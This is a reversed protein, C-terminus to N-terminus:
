IAMPGKRVATEIVDLKGMEGTLIGYQTQVGSVDMDWACRAMDRCIGIITGMTERELDEASRPIPCIAAAM